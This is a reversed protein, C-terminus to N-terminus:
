AAPGPARVRLLNRVSGAGGEHACLAAAQRDLWTDVTGTLTAQGRRVAVTIPQTALLPTWALQQEIRQQLTANPLDSAPAAPDYALYCAYYDSGGATPWAPVTLGNDVAVVGRLSAAVETARQKEYHSDVTGYLRVQGNCAVVELAFRQLYPDRLLAAQVHVQISTDAAPQRPRVRLYNSVSLVGVVGLADQEAAQRARLSDVCGRLTVQGHQVDVEPEDSRVRLDYFFSDRIAQQIEADARPAHKDGRLADNRAAPAVLLGAAEVAAAGVRWAARVVDRREAASGVYGRLVLGAGDDPRVQVLASNLRVDWALLEELAAALEAGSAAAHGLGAPSRLHDEVARVGRVSKVVHLVLDKDSWTPVDGLVMVRGERATCSVEYHCTIADQLLAEEVDRRLTVDPLDVWARVDITNIVGRVGRVAQAIEEARERALLHDAYGSLTVIGQATSVDVWHAKIGSKIALLREVAATIDADALDTERALTSVLTAM